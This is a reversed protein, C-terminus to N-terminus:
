EEDLLLLNIIPIIKKHEGNNITITASATNPEYMSNGSQSATVVCNGRLLGKVVGNNAVHCVSNKTANILIVLVRSVYALVLRLPM